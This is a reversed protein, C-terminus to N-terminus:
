EDLLVNRLVRENGRRVRESFAQQTIGLDSSLATASHQKPSEFYGERLALLLAERQEESLGLQRGDFEAETLTSVREVTIGLGRETCHDSFASVHEHDPFRLRFHWEGNARGELITGGADAIATLLRDPRGSWQVQCLLRDGVEDLVTLERIHDSERIEAEIRSREGGIVWFFPVVTDEVPVIRELEVEFQGEGGLVRGLAFEDRAVAFELIESM